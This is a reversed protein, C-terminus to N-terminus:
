RMARVVREDNGQILYRVGWELSVKMQDALDDPQAM